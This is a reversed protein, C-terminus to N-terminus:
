KCKGGGLGRADQQPASAVMANRSADPLQPGCDIKATTTQPLNVELRRVWWVEGSPLRLEVRGNDSERLMVVQRPFEAAPLKKVAKASADPFLSVETRGRAVEAEVTTQALATGSADVWLFIVLLGFWGRM